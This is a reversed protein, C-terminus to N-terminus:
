FRSKAIAGLRQIRLWAPEDEVTLQGGNHSAVLRAVGHTSNDFFTWEDSLPQYLYFVNAISRDFRRRVIESPVDHGGLRVRLKVRRVALTANRL